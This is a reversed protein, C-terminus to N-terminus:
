ETNDGILKSLGAAITDRVAGRSQSVAAEIAGGAPLKSTGFEYMAALSMAVQAGKAVRARPSRPKATASWTRMTQQKAVGALASPKKRSRLSSPLKRYAFISDIVEQPYGKLRSMTRMASAMLDAADGLSNMISGRADNKSEDSMASMLRNVNRVVENRGTIRVSKSVAM